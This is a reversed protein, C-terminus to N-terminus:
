DDNGDQGDGHGSFQYTGGTWSGGVALVGQFTASVRLHFLEGSGVVSTTVGGYRNGDVTGEDWLTSTGSRGDVTGTFLEYGSFTGKGTTPNLRITFMAVSKGLFTGQTWVFNVTTDIILTAGEQRVATVTGADQTWTGVVAKSPGALAATPMILWAFMAAAVGFRFFAKM